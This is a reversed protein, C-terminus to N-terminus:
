FGNFENEQVPACKIIRYYPKYGFMTQKNSSPISGNDTVNFFLMKNEDQQYGIYDGFSIDVDLEKLHDLYIWFTLNGPENYRLIGNVYSANKSDEIDIVVNLEVPPFTVISNSETEGYVDDTTSKDRNVRFLVVKTNIDGHLYEKGWQVHLKYDTEGFFKSLRTVPLKSM